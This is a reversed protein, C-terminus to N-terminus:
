FSGQQRQMYSQMDSPSMMRDNLNFMIWLTGGVIIILVLAMFVFILTNWRPHSETGLHLFFYLQVAVQVAGLVIISVLLSTGSLLNRQVLLFSALTLLICLVLGITYTKHSGQRITHPISAIDINEEM